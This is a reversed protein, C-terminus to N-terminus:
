NLDFYGVWFLIDLFKRLCGITIISYLLELSKPYESDM